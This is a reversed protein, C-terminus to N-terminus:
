RIRKMNSNLSEDERIQVVAIPEQRFRHVWGQGEGLQPWQSRQSMGPRGRWEDAKLPKRHDHMDM